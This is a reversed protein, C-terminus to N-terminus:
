SDISNDKFVSAHLSNYENQSYNNFHLPDLDDHHISHDTKTMIQYGGKVTALDKMIPRNGQHRGLQMQRNDTAVRHDHETHLMANIDVM